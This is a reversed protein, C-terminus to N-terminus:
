SQNDRYQRFLIMIAGLVAAPVAVFWFGTTREGQFVPLLFLGLCVMIAFLVLVWGTALMWHLTEGGGRMARVSHRHRRIRGAIIGLYKSARCPYPLLARKQFEARRV